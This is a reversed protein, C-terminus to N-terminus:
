WPGFRTKYQLLQFPNRIISAEFKSDSRKLLSRLQKVDNETCEGAFVFLRPPRRKYGITVGRPGDGASLTLLIKQVDSALGLDRILGTCPVPQPFTAM